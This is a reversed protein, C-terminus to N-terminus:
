LSILVLEFSGSTFFRSAAAARARKTLKCGCFMALLHLDDDFVEARVYLVLILPRALAM